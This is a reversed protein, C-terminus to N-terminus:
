NSMHKKISAYSAPSSVPNKSVYELIQKCIANDAQPPVPGHGMLMNFLDITELNLVHEYQACEEETLSPIHKVAWSGLM